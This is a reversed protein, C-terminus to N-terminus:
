ADQVGRLPAFREAEPDLSWGGVEIWSHAEVAGAQRAVGVHLAPELARLRNSMLLSRRLCSDPFPGRRCAAVALHTRRAAWAPVEVVAARQIVVDPGWQAGLWRALRPLKM